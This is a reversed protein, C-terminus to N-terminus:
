HLRGASVYNARYGPDDLRRSEVPRGTQPAHVFRGDGIYIGVHSVKPADFRFFLLDGALLQDPAITRAAAFQEGTTRPVEIGQLRHTFRVLGSCDFAAPGEGGYRYPRGLQALATAAIREGVAPSPTRSVPLSSCATLVFAVAALLLGAGRSKLRMTATGLRADHLTRNGHMSMM